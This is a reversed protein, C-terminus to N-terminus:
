MKPKITDTEIVTIYEDNSKIELINAINQCSCAFDYLMKLNFDNMNITKEGPYRAQVYVNKIDEVGYNLHENAVQYSDNTSMLIAKEGHNSWLESDYLFATNKAGITLAEGKEITERIQKAVHELSSNNYKLFQDFISQFVEQPLAKWLNALSHGKKILDKWNENTDKEFNILFGKLYSEVCLGLDTAIVMTEILKDETNLDKNSLINYNSNNIAQQIQSM